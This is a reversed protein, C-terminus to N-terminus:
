MMAVPEPYEAEPFEDPAENHKSQLAKCWSDVDDHPIAIIDLGPVGLAVDPTEDVACIKTDAGSISRCQEAREVAFELLDASGQEIVVINYAGSRIASEIAVRTQKEDRNSASIVTGVHHVGKRVENGGISFRPLSAVSESLDSTNYSLVGNVAPGPPLDLERDRVNEFLDVLADMASTAKSQGRLDFWLEPSRRMSPLRQVGTALPSAAMAAQALAVVRMSGKM